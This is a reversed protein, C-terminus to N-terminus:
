LRVPTGAQDLFGFQRQQVDQLIERQVLVEGGYGGLHHLLEITQQGRRGPTTGEKLGTQSDARGVLLDDAGGTLRVSVEDNQSHAAAISQVQGYKTRCGV